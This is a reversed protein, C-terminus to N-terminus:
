IIELIDYDHLRPLVFAGGARALKQGLRRSIVSKAKLSAPLRIRLDHIPALREIPRTPGGSYNILHMFIGGQNKRLSVELHSPADDFGPWASVSKRVISAILVRYEAPHYEHHMQGLTGAFYFCRGKGFRNEVLFPAAPKGLRTYRGPMDSLREALIRAGPHPRLPLSFLPLPLLSTRFRFYNWNDHTHVGGSASVGFVERLGFDRRRRGKGDYRSADFEAILTGGSAVWNKLAGTMDDALAGLAPLVIVKYKAWGAPDPRLDTIMDFPVQSETLLGFFGRVASEATNGSTRSLFDSEDGAASLYRDTAYSYVLGVEALSLTKDLADENRSLFRM